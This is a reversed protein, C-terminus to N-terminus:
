TEDQEGELYQIEDLQEDDLMGAEADLELKEAPDMNDWDPVVTPSQSPRPSKARKRPRDKRKRNARRAM